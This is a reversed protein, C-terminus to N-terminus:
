VLKQPLNNEEVLSDLWATTANLERATVSGIVTGPKEGNRMRWEPDLALGVDPKKLWRKLRITEEFFDSHGPQIDLLLIAKAKRAARYYRQILKNPMRTRYKGTPGPDADAITTILEFAPLVPRTKKVYGRAQRRLKRAVASPPGIGLIGLEAAAPNGLLRGRPPRPLHTAQREPLTPPPQSDAAGQPARTSAGVARRRTERRRRGPGGSAIRVSSAAAGLGAPRSAAIRRRRGSDGAPGALALPALGSDRLRAGCRARAPGRGGAQAATARGGPRRAHRVGRARDAQPDRPVDGAAAAVARRGHELLEIGAIGDAYLEDARDIQDRLLAERAGPALSGGFRAVTEAALYVRGNALDEDIDRLINTRQMAMGLAAAAARARRTARARPDGAM